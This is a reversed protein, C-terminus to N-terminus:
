RKHLHAYYDTMFRAKEASTRESRTGTKAVGDEVYPLSTWYALFSQRNSSQFMDADFADMINKDTWLDFEAARFDEYSPMEEETLSQEAIQNQIDAITYPAGQAFRPDIKRRTHDYHGITRWPSWNLFNTVVECYAVLLEYVGDHLPQGHGPHVVETNWYYRNGWFKPDDDRQKQPGLFRLDKDVYQELVEFKGAGASFNAPGASSLVIMPEVFGADQEEFYLRSGNWLGMWVNAKTQGVRNKVYPTYARSATHHVIHGNPQGDYQLHFGTPKVWFYGQQNTKWGDLEIFPVGAAALHQPLQAMVTHENM